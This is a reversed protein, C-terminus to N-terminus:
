GGWSRWLYLQWLRLCSCTNFGDVCADQTMFFRAMPWNDDMNMNLGYSRSLLGIAWADSRLFIYRYWSCGVLCGVVHTKHFLLDSPISELSGWCSRLEWVFMRSARVETRRLENGSLLGARECHRSIWMEWARFGLIVIVGAHTQFGWLKWVCLMCMILFKLEGDWVKHVHVTVWGLRMFSTTM